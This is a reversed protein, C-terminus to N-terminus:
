RTSPALDEAITSDKEVRLLGIPLYHGTASAGNVECCFLQGLPSISDDNGVLTASPKETDDSLDRGALNLKHDAGLLKSKGLLFEYEALPLVVFMTQGDGNAIYQPHLDM